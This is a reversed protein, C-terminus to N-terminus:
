KGRLTFTLVFNFLFSCLVVVFLFAALEQFSSLLLLAYYFRYFSFTFASEKITYRIQM